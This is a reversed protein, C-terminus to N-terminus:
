EELPLVKIPRWETESDVQGRPCFYVGVSRVFSLGVPLGVVSFRVTVDVAEVATGGPITELHNIRGHKPDATWERRVYGLRCGRRIRSIKIDMEARGGFLAPGRVQYNEITVPPEIPRPFLRDAWYESAPAMILFLLLPAGVYGLVRSIRRM